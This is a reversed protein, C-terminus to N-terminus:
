HNNNNDAVKNTLFILRGNYIYPNGGWYNMMKSYPDDENPFPSPILPDPVLKTVNTQGYGGWDSRVFYRALSNFDAFIRPDMVEYRNYSYTISFKRMAEINPESLHQVAGFPVSRPFCGTYKIWRLITTQDLDTVFIYISCSYDIIRHTIYQSFPLIEGKGVNHIYLVWLFHLMLAPSYFIDDFNLTVEGVSQVEEMGTAYIIKNGAFDSETEYTELALDKGGSTEICTNSILPIFPSSTVHSPQNSAKMGGTTTRSGLTALGEHSSMISGLQPRTLLKMLIRGMDTRLMYEFFPVREINQTLMFNLDPRTVFIFTKGAYVPDVGLRKGTTNFYSLSTTIPDALNTGNADLVKSYARALMKGYHDVSIKSLSQGVLDDVAQAFPSSSM